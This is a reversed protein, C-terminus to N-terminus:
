AQYLDRSMKSLIRNGSETVLIEDEVFFVGEGLGSNKRGFLIGKVVPEDYLCPEMTLVMGPELVAESNSAIRPFEHIDLGIGHGIGEYLSNRVHGRDKILAMVDEWIKGATVGAKLQRVGLEEAERATEFLELQNRSPRGVCLLRTLDSFYGRYMFGGDLILIDGKRLRRETPRTDCMTYRDPGARINLFMKLPMDEGAGDLIGKYVQRAVEKETMGERVNDFTEKYASLTIKCSKELYDVELGSKIMRCNWVIESADVISSRDLVRRIEDMFELSAAIHLRRGMEVGITGTEPPSIERIVNVVADFIKTPYKGGANVGEWYVYEARGLALMGEVNGRSSVHAVLVPDSDAALILFATSYDVSEISASGRYGCFYGINTETTLILCDVAKERMLRQAKAVRKRHESRPFDAIGYRGYSEAKRQSAM